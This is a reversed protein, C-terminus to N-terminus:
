TPNFSSWAFAFIMKVYSQTSIILGDASFLQVRSVGTLAKRTWSKRAAYFSYHLVTTKCLELATGEIPWSHKLRSCRDSFIRNKKLTEVQIRGNFIRSLLNTSLGECVKLSVTFLHLLKFALNSITMCYSQNCYAIIIM